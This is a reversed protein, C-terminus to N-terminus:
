RCGATAALFSERHFPESGDPGGGRAQGSARGARPEREGKEKIIRAAQADAWHCLENENREAM